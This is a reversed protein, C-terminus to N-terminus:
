GNVEAASLLEVVETVACDRHPKQQEGNADNTPGDPRILSPATPPTPIWFFGPRQNAPQDIGGIEVCTQASAPLTSTWSKDGSGAQHHNNDTVDSDIKKSNSQM